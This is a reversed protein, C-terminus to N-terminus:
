CEKGNHAVLKVSMTRDTGEDCLDQTLALAADARGGELALTFSRM